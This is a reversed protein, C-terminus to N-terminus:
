GFLLLQGRSKRGKRRNCKRHSCALNELIARGGDSYSIIHDAEPALDHTGGRYKKPALKGCLHCRYGDREFVKTKLAYSPVVDNPRRPTTTYHRGRKCVGCQKPPWGKARNERNPKYPRFREGCTSCICYLILHSSQGRAAERQVAPVCDPCYKSTKNKSIFCNSCKLCIIPYNRKTLYHKQTAEQYRGDRRYQDSLARARREMCTTSCHKSGAGDLKARFVRGCHCTRIQGKVPIIYKKGM